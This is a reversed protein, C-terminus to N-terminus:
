FFPGLEPSLQPRKYTSTVHRPPGARTRIYTRLGGLGNFETKPELADATAM